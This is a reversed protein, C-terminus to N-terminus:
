NSWVLVKQCVYITDVKISSSMMAPYVSQSRGGCVFLSNGGLDRISEVNGIDLNVRYAIYKDHFGTSSTRCRHVLILGGEDGYVPYVYDEPWPYRCALKVDAVVALRAKQNAAASEVVLINKTTVCYLRSSFSLALLICEDDIWLGTRDDGGDPWLRTWDDDGPKAVALTRCDNCLLAVTSDDAVGGSHLRVNMARFDMSRNWKCPPLLGTACPLDTLQGTVHNLLQVVHTGKRCLVLLGGAIPGFMYHRRLDPLRPHIRKGTHVNMLFPQRRTHGRPLLIWRRPHFRRDSVLSARPDDSCARWAACVARFRVLDAVDHALLREAILGAPGAPLNTWDRRSAPGTRTAM